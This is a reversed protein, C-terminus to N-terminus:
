ARSLTVPVEPSGERSEMPSVAPREGRTAIEQSWGSIDGGACFARGAGTVVIVRVDGDSSAAEIADIFEVELRASWANLKEPRNLTVIVIHERKEYLILDYDTMPEGEWPTGLNGCPRRLRM